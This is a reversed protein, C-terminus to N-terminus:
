EHRAIGLMTLARRPLPASTDILREPDYSDNQASSLEPPLDRLLEVSLDDLLRFVVINSYDADRQLLFEDLPTDRVNCNKDEFCMFAIQPRVGEYIVYYIADLSNTHLEFLGLAELEDLSRDTLLIIYAEPDIAPAQKIMQMLVKAKGNASNVFHQHQTLLRSFGAIILLLWVGIFFATRVSIKSITVTVLTLLSLVVIAAGIPVYVYMRWLDSNYRELWMLVGVSALVLLLGGGTAIGLRRVSPFENASTRHALYAAIAGCLVM